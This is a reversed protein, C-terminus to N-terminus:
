NKKYKIRNWPSAIGRLSAYCGYPIKIVAVYGIVLLPCTSINYHFLFSHKKINKKFGVYKESYYHISCVIKQLYFYRRNLKAGDKSKKNNVGGKVFFKWNESSCFNVCEKDFFNLKLLKTKDCIMSSTNMRM